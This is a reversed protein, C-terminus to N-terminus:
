PQGRKKRRDLELRAVRESLQNVTKKDNAVLDLWQWERSEIQQVREALSDLKVSHMRQTRGIERAYKESRQSMTEDGIETMATRFPVYEATTGCGARRTDSAKDLNGEEVDSQTHYIAMIVAEERMGHELAGDIAKMTQANMDHGFAARFKDTIFLTM